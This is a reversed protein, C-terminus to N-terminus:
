NGGGILYDTDMRQMAELKDAGNVTLATIECRGRGVGGEGGFTLLGLHLDNITAALLRLLREDTDAPLEIRLEGEGGQAIRSTFLAANRPAATFRDVATRTITYHSSGRMVTEHFLIGSRRPKKDKKEEGNEDSAREVNVYGFLDDTERVLEPVGAELALAHLHHRFSGAWATGPVVPDGNLDALPTMDPAPEYKSEPLGTTYVRVSYSGVAKLMASIRLIGDGGDEVPSPNWPSDFCKAEATFPDFALWADLEEPLAFVKKHIEAKMSGYGRTTRAGLCVGNREIQRLIHEFCALDSESANDALEFLARYPKRCEVVEFDYKEGTESVGRDNLSVGDRRTVRFDADQSDPSLVADSILVKSECIAPRIAGFLKDRNEEQCLGRLVGTLSTGPVMPFGRSDKSVDSDTKDGIGTGVRLPATQELICLYYTKIM